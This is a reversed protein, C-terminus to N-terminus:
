ICDGVSGIGYHYNKKIDLLEEMLLRRNAGLFSGYSFFFLSILFWNGNCVWFFFLFFRFLSAHITVDKIWSIFFLTV